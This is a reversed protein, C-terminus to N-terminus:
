GHLAGELRSFYDQQSKGGFASKMQKSSTASLLAAKHTADFRLMWRNSYSLSLRALRRANQSSVGAPLKRARAARRRPQPVGRGGHLDEGGQEGGLGELQGAEVMAVVSGVVKVAAQHKGEGALLAATHLRCKAVHHWQGLAAHARTARQLYQLGAAPKRRRHYYHAYCDAVFARLERREAPMLLDERGILQEAKQLMKLAKGFKSADTLKTAFITCVVILQRHQRRMLPMADGTINYLYAMLLAEVVGVYKGYRQKRELTRLESCLRHRCSVDTMDVPAGTGDAALACWVAKAQGAGAFWIHRRRVKVEM